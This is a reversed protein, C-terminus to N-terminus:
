DNSLPEDSLIYKGKKNHLYHALKQKPKADPAKIDDTAQGDDVRLEIMEESDSEGKNSETDEEEEEEETETDDDEKVGDM